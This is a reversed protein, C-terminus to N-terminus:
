AIVERRYFEDIEQASYGARKLLERTHEGLTAVPEPTGIEYESFMAPFHLQLYEGIRDDKEESLVSRSKMQEHEFAEEVTLVPAAIFDEEWLRQLWYERPESEFREQVRQEVLDRNERISTTTLFRESEVWDNFELVEWFTRWKEPTRPLVDVTLPDTSTAYIGRPGEARGPAGPPEIDNDVSYAAAKDSFAGLLVDLMSIDIHTGEDGLLAALIAITVYAVTLEDAVFWGSLSPADSDSRLANQYPLGSMGQAMFDVAKRDNWPGTNGYGSISCYVIDENVVAVDDYGLKLADMAGPAMNEILIDADEALTMFIERGIDLSIDLALSKKGSNVIAQLPTIGDVPEAHATPQRFPGGSTREIKIVEAGFEALFRAPKPATLFTGVELVTVDELMASSDFM